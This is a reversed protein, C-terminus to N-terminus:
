FSEVTRYAFRRRKSTLVLGTGALMLMMVIILNSTNFNFGTASLSPVSTVTLTATTATYSVRYGYGNSTFTAGEALGNFTGSLATTAGVIMYQSGLAPKYNNFLSLNLTASGLAATGVVNTQDYGSCPTAGGLEVNIASGSNLTLDGTQLCGPSNGTSLNGGSEIESDGIEGAGKLTGGSGVVTNVESLLANGVNVIGGEIFITPGQGAVGGYVSGTLDWTGSGIKTIDAPTTTTFSGTFNGSANGGGVTIGQGLGNIFFNANGTLSGIIEDPNDSGLVANTAPHEFFNVIANDAIQNGANSSISVFADLLSTSTVNLNGPVGVGATKLLYLEAGILNTTGVYDNTATESFVFGGAGDVGILTLDGTGTIQGTFQFESGGTLANSFTVNGELTIDGSLIGNATATFLQLAGTDSPGNGSVAIDEPFTRDTGFAQFIIRGGSEVTTDGATSGMSDQATAALRGSSTVTTDGTYGNNNIMQVLGNIVVNGAGTIVGNHVIQAGSDTSYTIENAGLTVNGNILLSKSADVSIAADSSLTVSGTMTASEVAEISPPGTTSFSDFVVNYPFTMGSSNLQLKATAGADGFEVYVVNANDGLCGTASQCNVTSREIFVQNATFTQASTQTNYVELPATPNGALTLGVTTGTITPLDFSANSTFILLSATGTLAMDIGGTFTPTALQVNLQAIGSAATFKIQSTFTVSSFVNMTGSLEFANGSISYGSGGLSFTVGNAIISLDNNMATNSAVSPFVLTDGTEPIGANDCGSWNSGVSWNGNTAGSWTCTDAAGSVPSSTFVILPTAVLITVLILKFYNKM